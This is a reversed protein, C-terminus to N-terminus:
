VEEVTVRYLKGQIDVVSMTKKTSMFSGEENVDYRTMGVNDIYTDFKQSDFKLADRVVKAIYDCYALM